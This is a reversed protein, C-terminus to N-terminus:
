PGHTRAHAAINAACAAGYVFTLYAFLTVLGAEAVVFFRGQPAASRDFYFFQVALRGGWYAAMFGTVAAALPSGDLLWAPALTSVLGFCANTVLIYAAYTWFVQRLLTPLTATAERWRLLRPIATSAAALLLQGVGAIFVLREHPLTM